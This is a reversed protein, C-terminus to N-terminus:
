QKLAKTELLELATRYLTRARPLSETTDRTFEADAYALLCRVISLLTFRTYANLRTSAILHPNLPDRM